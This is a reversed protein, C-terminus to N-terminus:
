PLVQPGQSPQNRMWNFWPYAGIFVSPSVPFPETSLRIGEVWLLPHRPAAPNQALWLELKRITELHREPYRTVGAKLAEKEKLLAYRPDIVFM